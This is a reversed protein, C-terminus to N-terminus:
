TSSYIEQVLAHNESTASEGRERRTDAIREAEETDSLVLPNSINFSLVAWFTVRLISQSKRCVRNFLFHNGVPLKGFSFAYM